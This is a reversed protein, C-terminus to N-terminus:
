VYQNQSSSQSLIISIPETKMWVVCCTIHLIGTILGYGSLFCPGSYLDIEDSLVNSWKAM